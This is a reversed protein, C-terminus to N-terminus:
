GGPGGPGNPGAPGPNFMTAQPNGGGGGSPPPPAPASAVGAYDPNEMPRESYVTFAMPGNIGPVNAVPLPITLFPNCNVTTQVAVIKETESGTTVGNKYSVNTSPYGSLNTFKGMGSLWQDPILKRVIGTPSTADASPILSAEHVQNYNLVVCLGYSVALSLMNVLP